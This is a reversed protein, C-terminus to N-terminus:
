PVSLIRGSGVAAVTVVLLLGADGIPDSADRSGWRSGKGSLGDEMGSLDPSGQSFM